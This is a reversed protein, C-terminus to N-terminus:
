LVAPRRCNSQGRRPLSPPPSSPPATWKGDAAPHILESHLWPWGETNYHVYPPNTSDNRVISAENSLTVGVRLMGPPRTWAMPLARVRALANSLSQSNVWPTTPSVSIMLMAM